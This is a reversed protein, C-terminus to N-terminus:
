AAGRESPLGAMVWAGTGGLVNIAHVGQGELWATAQASRGGSQCIVYVDRDRPIEGVRAQLTSLPVNVAGVARTAVYEDVERVDLLYASDGLEAVSRPDIDNM